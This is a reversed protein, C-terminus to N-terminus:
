QFQHNMITAASRHLTISYSITQLLKVVPPDTVAGASTLSSSSIAQFSLYTKNSLLHTLHM